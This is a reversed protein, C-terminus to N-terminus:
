VLMENSDFGCWMSSLRTTEFRLVKVVRGILGVIVKIGGHKPRPIVCQIHVSCYKTHYVVTRHKYLFDIVALLQLPLISLSRGWPITRRINNPM